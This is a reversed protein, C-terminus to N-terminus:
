ATSINRSPAPARWDPPSLTRGAADLFRQRTCLIVEIGAPGMGDRRSAQFSYPGLRHGSLYAFQPGLRLEAWAANPFQLTARLWQYTAPQEALLQEIRSFELSGGARASVALLGLIMALALPPRRSAKM